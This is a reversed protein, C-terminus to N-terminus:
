AIQGLMRTLIPPGICTIDSAKKADAPSLGPLYRVLPLHFVPPLRSLRTPSPDEIFSLEFLKSLIDRTEKGTLNAVFLNIFLDLPPRPRTVLWNAQIQSIAKETKSLTEDDTVAPPMLIGKTSNENIIAFYKKRVIEILEDKLTARAHRIRDRFRSRVRGSLADVQSQLGIIIPHKKIIADDEKSIERPAGPVRQFSPTSVNTFLDSTGGLQSGLSSTALDFDLCNPQYAKEFVASTHDM